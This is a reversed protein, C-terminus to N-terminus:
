DPAAALQSLAEEVAEPEARRPNGRFGGITGTAERLGARGAAVVALTRADRTWAALGRLITRRARADGLRALAVLAHWRLVDVRAFLGFARRELARQARHLGRVGVLEVAEELDSGPDLPVSGDVVGVLIEDARAVGFPALWLAAAARVISARDDLARRAGDVIASPAGSEPWRKRALRLAMARVEDDEDGLAREVLGPAREPALRECAILAQFRLEPESAGLASGLRESLEADGPEGLEGLAIIAMQRVRLASDDLAALLATRAGTAEVDALAVAAEARLEVRPDSRLLGIIAITARERDSTRALKVLDGLASLRVRAEPHEADRLAAAITRPLPPLGLM